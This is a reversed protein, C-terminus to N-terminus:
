THVKLKLHYHQYTLLLQFINKIYQIETTYMNKNIRNNLIKVTTETNKM